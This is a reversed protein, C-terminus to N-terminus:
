RRPPITIILSLNAPPTQQQIVNEAAQTGGPQILSSGGLQTPEPSLAASVAQARSLLQALQAETALPLAAFQTPSVVNPPKMETPIQATLRLGQELSQREAPPLETARSPP